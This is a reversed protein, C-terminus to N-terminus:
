PLHALLPALQPRDTGNSPELTYIYDGWWPGAAWYTWGLWVDGHQQIHAVMDGLAAYCTDNRGGGLEGLFGRKKNAELWATFGALRESGITASVCSDSQGSSDGDLYQHVEFAYNDAPDVIGLMVQANPSGYWSESWSHAGTWANGPVLVLNGAGAARVAALAANADDRWQETPMSNPENMLGFIVRANGAYHAALRSWFDALAAAPVESGVLKGYYRAYNHPDLLAWAGKSTTYSILDDLQGLEAADLDGMAQHQLREWRFPFRLVNLGKGTFYDVEQHTPYTYDSGLKGPLNGEGFEAGALAVGALAYGSLAAGGGAGAGGGADGGGGAGGAPQGAAGGGPTSGGEGSGAAGSGDGGAATGGAATGGAASGGAASGGAASGGATSGGAATGGAAGSGASGGASSGAAASGGVSSGAASSGAASSGAASSGGTASGGASSGASSSSGASAGGASSGAAAKGGTSSGAASGGAAGGSGGSNTTGGKGAAGSSAQGSAGASASSGSTGGTSDVPDSSAEDSSACGAVATSMAVLVVSARWFFRM